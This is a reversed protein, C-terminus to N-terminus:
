EADLEDSAFQDVDFDAERDAAEDECAQEQDDDEEEPQELVPLRRKAVAGTPVFDRLGFSEATAQLKALGKIELQRVRERTLNMVRGVEELTVGRRDAVDLACSEALEDPELDPFNLKIAGTRASVDLYLHHACSVFPCPRPGGQCDARTRPREVDAHEEAPFLARGLELERKTLRKMSMTRARVERHRRSRLQERSLPERDRDRAMRALRMEAQAANLQEDATPEPPPFIELQKGM